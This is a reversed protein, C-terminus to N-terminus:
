RDSRRTDNRLKQLQHPTLTWRPDASDWGYGWERETERPDSEGVVLGLKRATMELVERTEIASLFEVNRIEEITMPRADPASCFDESGSMEQVNLSPLQEGPHVTLYAARKSVIIGLDRVKDILERRREMDPQSPICRAQIRDLGPLNVEASNQSPGNRLYTAVFEYQSSEQPALAAALTSDKRRRRRLRPPADWDVGNRELEAIARARPSMRRDMSMSLTHQSLPSKCGTSTITGMDLSRGKQQRYLRGRTANSTEASTQCIFHAPTSANDPTSPVGQAGQPQGVGACRSVRYGDRIM